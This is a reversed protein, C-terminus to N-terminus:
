FLKLKKLMSEFNSTSVDSDFMNDRNDVWSAM